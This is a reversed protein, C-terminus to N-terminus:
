EELFNSLIHKFFYSVDEISKTTGNAMLVQSGADFCCTMNCCYIHTPEGTAEYCHQEGGIDNTVYGGIFPRDFDPEDANEKPYYCKSEATTPGGFDGHVLNEPTSPTILVKIDLTGITDTYEGFTTLDINSTKVFQVDTVPYPDNDWDVEVQFISGNYLVYVALDEDDMGIFWVEKGDVEYPTDVVYPGIDDNYNNALYFQKLKEADSLGTEGGTGNGVRGNNVNYSHGTENFLVKLSNGAEM